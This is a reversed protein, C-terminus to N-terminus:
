RLCEGKTGAGVFGRRNDGETQVFSGDFKTISEIRNSDGVSSRILNALQGQYNNEVVYVIDLQDYSNM